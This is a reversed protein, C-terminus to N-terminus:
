GRVEPWLYVLGVPELRRLAVEYLAELQPPEHEIEHDIRSLRERWYALNQELQERQEKESDTFHLALQDAGKMEKSIGAKQAELIRRLSAAEEQARARLKTEADHALSDAEERIQPWLQAFVSPTAAQLKAQIAPSIGDLSPSERLIQEIMEVAKRDAAEAFPRLPDNTGEVWRAAVSVLQDHLRTAGPGFLSLRGFAIVRILADHRNRLVTVRSLDHASYGQARFRSLIRQVFPHELHLHVLRSNMRKPPRFVVPQPPKKRWEWIPEQRERPPRLYDLTEQWSDPMPPLEYAQHDSDDKDVKGAQVPALRPAGSLELGVNVADQLLTPDFSTIEKSRNLIAGASEVEKRLKAQDDRQSELERQATERLLGTQEARDLAESTLDTIGPEMVEAMRDMLVASLSGLERQITDVKRVLKKLVLDEARQPYAFYHCRVEPAPQLTRDIRGNRQEMRAPNWPIDFHFLDACHGQLNIGERAADTAILIRVPHEDPPSNFARQVEERQEDSMGGHFQMIRDEDQDTGRLAAGLIQLLYRKTDGYETFVLVRRDTWRTDAPKAKPDAKPDAGGVQAAPCQHRRIWDVLALVKGDPAGRYQDALSLMESLLQRARGEPTELLRSAAIIEAGAAEEAQEDDDGYEDQEGRLEAARAAMHSALRLQTKAKGESVSKAHLRLTRSFAEISSLLRKQLNIFVLRGQGKTPAMLSTYEGLLRSLRLEAPEGEGITTADGQPADDGQPTADTALSQTARWTTGTSTIAVEVIKREPYDGVDMRRLDEKLRRVMVAELEAPGSIPVGRTFRQRDLIELLASFSNSHGNHPTASLFLRNEFRPAIDRIVRTLRSDIAYKSASAPAAVHAEDLILLSKRAREGIHQLLPDRYEPRRLTQHSIIFRSHTSWPNVGFGRERRRRGIFARNYIEFQLGFKKSMEERWQLCVSAPCVILVFSVRQRLQLEQLVLGAEITKGLGTDDAIFLNARPLKLAKQLPTLQHSLLQIGARFPAQFLEADTATVSHWKLAHLYAGFHRPQDIGAVDGIGQTEPQLVKAGLEMEWLVDLSRGQNDDDLCVLRVATAHRPEPPPTVEEVLWQRHRVQVIDGPTPAYRPIEDVAFLIEPPEAEEGHAEILRGALLPRARGSDDLGHARCASKLEDRGLSRLLNQFRVQGSKVMAEVLEDKKGEVPLVLGLQRGLDELRAKTLVSLVSQNTPPALTVQIAGESPAFPLQPEWSSHPADPLPRRTAAPIVRGRRAQPEEPARGPRRVPLATGAHHSAFLARLREAVEQRPSSRGTEWFSVTPSSVGVQEALQSQTLGVRERFARVQAAWATDPEAPKPPTSAAQRPGSAVPTVSETAQRGTSIREVLDAKARGHDSLGLGRCLEKLEDRSFTELIEALSARRSATLAEVLHEHVRRDEVEVEFTDALERLVNRNLHELILRKTAM